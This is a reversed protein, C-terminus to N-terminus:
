PRFGNKEMASKIWKIDNATVEVQTALKLLSAEQTNVKMIAANAIGEIREDNEKSTQINTAWFAGVLAFILSLMIGIIWKFSGNLKERITSM